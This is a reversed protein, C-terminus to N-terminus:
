PLDIAVRCGFDSNLGQEAETKYRSTFCGLTQDDWMSKGGVEIVPNNPYRVLSRALKTYNVAHQPRDGSRSVPKAAPRGKEDAEEGSECTSDTGIWTLALVAAALVPRVMGALRGCNPKMFAHVM